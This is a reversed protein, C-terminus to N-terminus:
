KHTKHGVFGSAFRRRKSTVQFLEPELPCSTHTPQKRPHTIAKCSPLRPAAGEQRKHPHGEGGCVQGRTKAILQSPLELRELSHGGPVDVVLGLPMGRSEDGISDM